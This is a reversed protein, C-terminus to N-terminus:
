LAYLVQCEVQFHDVTIKGPGICFNEMVQIDDLAMDSHFGDGRIGKFLVQVLFCSFFLFTNSQSDIFCSHLLFELTKRLKETEENQISNKSFIACYTYFFSM